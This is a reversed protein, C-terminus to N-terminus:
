LSGHLPAGMNLHGGQMSEGLGRRGMGEFGREPPKHSSPYMYIYPQAGKSNM